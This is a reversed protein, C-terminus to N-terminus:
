KKLFYGVEIVIRGIRGRLERYVQLLFRELTEFKLDDTKFNHETRHKGRKVYDDIQMDFSHEYDNLNISTNQMNRVNLEGRFDEQPIFQPAQNEDFNQDAQNGGFNQVPEVQNGGFNQHAQNGSQLPQLQGGQVPTPATTSVSQGYKSM